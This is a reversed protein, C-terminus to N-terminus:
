PASRPMVSHTGDPRGVAETATSTFAAPTRRATEAHRAVSAAVTGSTHVAGVPHPQTQFAYRMRGDAGRRCPRIVKAAVLSRLVEEPLMARGAMSSRAAAFSSPSEAAMGGGVREAVPPEQIVETYADNLLPGPGVGLEDNFIRRGQHFIAMAEGRLGSRHLARMLLVRLSERLPHEEVLRQLEPLLQGHRDLELEATIRGELAVLRAQLFRPQESEAMFDTVSCLATGRWLGLAARFSSAAAAFHREELQRHGEASLRAFARHDLEQGATAMLYGPWRREIVAEPALAKRLRSIYTYIQAGATAPPHWGWLLTSLRDDPVVRGEALLLAALVTHAKTGTLRVRGSAGYVEVPGLIRFRM